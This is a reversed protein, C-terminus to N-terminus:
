WRRWHRRHWRYPRYGGYYGYYRPRYYRRPAYYNGYYGGYGSGYAYSPYGYGYGYGYGYPRYYRHHIGGLIVAAAIGGGIWGWGRRAEAQQTSSTVLLMALALTAVLAAPTRVKMIVERIHWNEIARRPGHDSALRRIPLGPTNRRL